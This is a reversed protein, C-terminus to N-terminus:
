VREGVKEALRILRDMSLEELQHRHLTCTPIGLIQHTLSSRNFAEEAELDRTHDFNESGVNPHQREFYPKYKDASTILRYDRQAERTLKSRFLM